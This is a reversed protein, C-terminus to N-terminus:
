SENKRSGKGLRVPVVHDDQSHLILTPATINRFFVNTKEPSLDWYDIIYTYFLISDNIKDYILNYVIIMMSIM